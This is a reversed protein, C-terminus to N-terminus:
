VLTIEGDSVVAGLELRHSVVKVVNTLRNRFWTLHQIQKAAEVWLVAVGDRGDGRAVWWVYEETGARM